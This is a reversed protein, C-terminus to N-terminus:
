RSPSITRRFPVRASMTVAFEDRHLDSEGAAFVALGFVGLGFVALTQIGAVFLPRNQSGCREHAHVVRPIGLNTLADKHRHALPGGDRSRNVAVGFRVSGRHGNVLRLHLVAM